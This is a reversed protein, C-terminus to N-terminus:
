IEYKIEIWGRNYSTANYNTNDFVAMMKGYTETAAACRTMKINTADWYFYGGATISLYHNIGDMGVAVYDLAYHNADADDRITVKVARIKTTCGHAVDLSANSDMDWDGIPIIKTAVWAGLGSDYSEVTGNGYERIATERRRYLLKKTQSTPSVKYASAITRIVSGSSHYWGQKSESWTPATSNWAATATQAGASGAPTLEIYATTATTINSWSTANIATEAGTIFFANGIELASGAAIASLGSTAWNTLSVALYGKLGSSIITVSTPIQTIAM